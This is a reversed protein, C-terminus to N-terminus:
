ASLLICPKNDYTNYTVCVQFSFYNLKFTGQETDSYRKIVIYVNM